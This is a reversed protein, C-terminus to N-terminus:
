SLCCWALILVFNLQRYIFHMKRYLNTAEHRILSVNVETYYTTKQHCEDNFHEIINYLDTITHTLPPYVAATLVFLLSSKGTVHLSENMTCIFNSHEYLINYYNIINQSVNKRQLFSVAHSHLFNCISTSLLKCQEGLIKRNIFHLLIFHAPCKAHIPSQPTNYLTNTPFGSPFFGSLFNL